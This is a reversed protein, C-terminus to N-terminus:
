TSSNEYEWCSIRIVCYGVCLSDREVCFLCHFHSCFFNFKSEFDVFIDVKPPSDNEKSLVRLLNGMVPQSIAVYVQLSFFLMLLCM